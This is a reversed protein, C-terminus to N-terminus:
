IGIVALPNELARLGGAGTEELAEEVCLGSLSVEVAMPPGPHALLRVALVSVEPEDRVAIELPVHAVEMGRFTIEAGDERAEWLHGGRAGAAVNAVLAKRPPKVQVVVYFCVVTHPVM